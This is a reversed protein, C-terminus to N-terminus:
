KSVSASVECCEADASELFDVVGSCDEFPGDSEDEGKVDGGENEVENRGNVCLLISAVASGHLHLLIIIQASLM